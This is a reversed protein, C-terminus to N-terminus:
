FISFLLISVECSTPSELGRILRTDFFSDVAIKPLIHSFVKARLCCKSCVDAHVKRDLTIFHFLINLYIVDNCFTYSWTKRWHTQFHSMCVCFIGSSVSALSSRWLCSWVNSLLCWQMCNDLLIQLYFSLILSLILM